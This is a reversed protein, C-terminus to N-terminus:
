PVQVSVAKNVVEVQGSDTFGTFVSAPEKLDTKINDGAPRSRLRKRTTKRCFCM